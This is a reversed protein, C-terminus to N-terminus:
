LAEISANFHKIKDTVQQVTDGEKFIDSGIGVGAVGVALWQKVNAPTIGGVAIIKVHNPIVSKLANLHAVGYSTAPFLKLHTAGADVATFVETPTLVGPIPTLSNELAHEILAPQTHPSIALTANGNINLASLSKIDDSHKITGAGLLCDEPLSAILLAICELAHPRNLPVEICRVGNDYLTQGIAVANTPSLGRLIAIIPNQELCQRLSPM